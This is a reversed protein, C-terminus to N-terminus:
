QYLVRRAILVTLVIVIIWIVLLSCYNFLSNTEKTKIYKIKDSKVSNTEVLTSNDTAQDSTLHRNRPISATEQISFNQLQASQPIEDHNEFGNSQEIKPFSKNEQKFDKELM